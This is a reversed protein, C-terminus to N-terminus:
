IEERRRKRQRRQAQLPKKIMGIYGSKIYCYANLARVNRFGAFSKV